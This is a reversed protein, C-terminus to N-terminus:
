DGATKQIEYSLKDADFVQTYIEEVTKGLTETLIPDNKKAQSIINQVFPSDTEYEKMDNFTFKGRKLWYSENEYDIFDFIYLDNCRLWYYCDEEAYDVFALIRDGEKFLPFGELTETRNGEQKLITEAGNKITNKYSYNIKVKFYTQPIGEFDEKLWELVTFDLIDYSKTVADDFDNFGTAYSSNYEGQSGLRNYGKSASYSNDIAEKNTTNDSVTEDGDKSNIFYYMSLTSVFIVILLVPLLITRKFRKTM